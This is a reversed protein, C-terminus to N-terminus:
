ACSQLILWGEIHGEPLKARKIQIQLHPCNPVHHMAALFYLASDSLYSYM